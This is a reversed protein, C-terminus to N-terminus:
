RKILKLLNKYWAALIPADTKLEEYVIDPKASPLGIAAAVTDRLHILMAQPMHAGPTFLSLKTLIVANSARNWQSLTLDYKKVLGAPIKGQRIELLQELMVYRYLEKAAERLPFPLENMFCAEVTKSLKAM